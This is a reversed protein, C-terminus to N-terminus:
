MKMNRSMSMHMGMLRMMRAHHAPMAVVMEKGSLEPLTALDRRVSDITATWAADGSMNMKRMDATMTALLNAAMQRHAPMMAKMQDPSIKMMADMQKQMGGMMGSMGGMGNMGTMGGSDGSMGAMGAMAGTDSGSMGKTKRMGSMGKMAGMGTSSDAKTTASSSDASPGGKACAAVSLLLVGAALLAPRSGRRFGCVARAVSLAPHAHHSFM